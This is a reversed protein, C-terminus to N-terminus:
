QQSFGLRCYNKLYTERYSLPCQNFVLREKSRLGMFRALIFSFYESSHPTLQGLLSDLEISRIFADLSSSLLHTSEKLTLSSTM